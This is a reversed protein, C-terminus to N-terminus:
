VHREGREEPDQRLPGQVKQTGKVIGEEDVDLEVNRLKIEHLKQCLVCILILLRRSPEVTRAPYHLYFCTSGCVCKLRM